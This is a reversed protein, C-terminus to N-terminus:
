PSSRLYRCIDRYRYSSTYGVRGNDKKHLQNFRIDNKREIANYVLIPITVLSFRIHGKWVSRM